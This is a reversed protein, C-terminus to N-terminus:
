IEAAFTSNQRGGISFLCIRWSKVAGRFHWPKCYVNNMHCENGSFSSNPRFAILYIKFIALVQLPISILEKHVYLKVLKSAFVCMLDNHHFYNFKSGYPPGRWTFGCIVNDDNLPRERWNERGRCHCYSSPWKSIKCYSAFSLLSTPNSLTPLGCLYECCLRLIVGHIKCNLEVFMWINWSVVYGHM